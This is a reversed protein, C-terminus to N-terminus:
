WIRLVQTKDMNVDNITICDGIEINDYEKYAGEDTGILDEYDKSTNFCTLTIFEGPECFTLFGKKFKNQANKFSFTHYEATKGSENQIESLLNEVKSEVIKTKLDKM